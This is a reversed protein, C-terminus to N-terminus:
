CFQSNGQRMGPLIGDWVNESRTLNWIVFTKDATIFTVKIPM